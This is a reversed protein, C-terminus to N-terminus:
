RDQARSLIARLCRTAGGPTTVSRGETAYCGWLNSSKPFQHEVTQCGAEAAYEVLKAPAAREALAVDIRRQGFDAGRQDFGVDREADDGFEDGLDAGAGDAFVDDARDRGTLLDDLDDVVHQNFRQARFIRRQRQARRRRRDQHDAQLARALGRGRGLDAQHQLAFLFLAHQHCRQVDATGGGHLLELDQAFLGTDGREGNEGALRREIDGLPRHRAGADAAIVNQDEVGGAALVDVLLQHELDRRDLVLDFRV